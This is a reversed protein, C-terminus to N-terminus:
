REGKNYENLTIGGRIDGKTSQGEQVKERLDKVTEVVSPLKEMNRMYDKTSWKLKGNGDTETPDFAELYEALKYVSDVAKNLLKQEPTETLEVYKDEAKEVVEPIDFDEDGLIQKKVQRKRESGKHNAYPSEPSHKHWIYALMVEPNDCEDILDSFEDIQTAAPHPFAQVESDLKLLKGHM